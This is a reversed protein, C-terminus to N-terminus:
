APPHPSFFHIKFPNAFSSYVAAGKLHQTFHHLCSQSYQIQADFVSILTYQVVVVFFCRRFLRFVRHSGGTFKALLIGKSRGCNLMRPACGPFSIQFSNKAFPRKSTSSCQSVPMATAWIAGVATGSSSILCISFLAKKLCMVRGLKKSLCAFLVILLLYRILTASLL